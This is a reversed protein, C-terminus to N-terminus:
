NLSIHLFCSDASDLIFLEDIEVGPLYSFLSFQAAVTQM